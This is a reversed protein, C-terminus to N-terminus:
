KRTAFPKLLMESVVNLRACWQCRPACEEGQGHALLFALQEFLVEGPEADPLYTQRRPAPEPMFAVSNEDLRFHELLRLLVQGLRKAYARVMEPLSAM